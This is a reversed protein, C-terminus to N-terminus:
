KFYSKLSKYISDISQEANLDRVLGKARYYTIAPGTQDKYQKLRNKMTEENDDKRQTLPEGTVDDIGAQKPPNFKKHYSRGSPAHILRGCVREVVIEDRVNFTVVGRLTEKKKTM